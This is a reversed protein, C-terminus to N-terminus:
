QNHSAQTRTKIPSQSSVWLFGILRSPHTMMKGAAKQVPFVIFWHLVAGNESALSDQSHYPNMTRM